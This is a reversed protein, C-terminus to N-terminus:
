VYNGRYWTHSYYDEKLFGYIHLDDNELAKRMVGESKFGFHENIKKAKINSDAVLGTVRVVGLKDFIFGFIQNFMRITSMPRMKMSDMVINLDINRKTFNTMIVVCMFDDNKDVASFARFFTPPDQLNLKQRAWKEAKEEKEFGIIKM